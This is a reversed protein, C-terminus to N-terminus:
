GHKEEILPNVGLKFIETYTTGEPIMDPSVIDEVRDGDRLAHICYAVTNAQLATLKHEVGAKIYIM